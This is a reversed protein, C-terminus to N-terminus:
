GKFLLKNLTYEVKDDRKTCCDWNGM